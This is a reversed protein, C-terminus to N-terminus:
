KNIIDRVLGAAELRATDLVDNIIEYEYKGQSRAFDMEVKANELRLRITEEDDTGRAKLRKELHRLTPPVILIGVAEPYVEDFKIKGFVDIDMVAHLGRSVVSEIFARPTGYYNGHVKEWEAFEGAAVRREFEGEAMFFYHTGDVEGPRPRRTTASVSYVLGPVDERLFNIITNKGAGSPASFVLIKGRRFRGM